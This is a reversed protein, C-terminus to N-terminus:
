EEEEEEDDDGSTELGFLQPLGAWLRERRDEERQVLQKICASCLPHAPKPRRKYSHAHIASIWSHLAESDGADLVLYDSLISHIVTNRRSHTSCKDNKRIHNFTEGLTSTVFLTCLKARADLCRRLDEPSLTDKTGDSRTHGEMLEEATLQCCLYFAAPLMSPTNTLRALNVGAIARWMDAYRYQDRCDRSALTSPFYDKLETLSEELLQKMGYKHALRTCNALDEFTSLPLKRFQTPLLVSLMSSIEAATDTVHVVPCDEVADLGPQPLSFMDRFVDSHTALLGKYVRFGVNEAIVVIDGDAYWFRDDRSFPEKSSDSRSSAASSQSDTRPRKRTPPEDSM